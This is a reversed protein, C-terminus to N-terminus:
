KASREREEKNQKEGNANGTFGINSSLHVNPFHSIGNVGKIHVCLQQCTIGSSWRSLLRYYLRESKDISKNHGYM